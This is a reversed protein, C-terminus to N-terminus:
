CLQHTVKGAYVLIEAHIYSFPISVVLAQLGHVM